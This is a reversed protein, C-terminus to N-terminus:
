RSQEVKVAPQIMALHRGLGVPKIGGKGLLSPFPELAPQWRKHSTHLTREERVKSKARQTEKERILLVGGERALM